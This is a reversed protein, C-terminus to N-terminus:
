WSETCIGILYLYPPALFPKVIKQTVLQPFLIDDTSHYLIGMNLTCVWVCFHCASSLNGTCIRNYWPMELVVHCHHQCLVKCPQIVNTCKKELVGSTFCYHIQHETSIMLPHEGQEKKLALLKIFPTPFTTKYKQPSFLSSFNFSKSYM